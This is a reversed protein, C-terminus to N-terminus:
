RKLSFHSRFEKNIGAEQYNITFWYDTAPLLQGNLTGDWGSGSAGSATMEKILKGFRDFIYIKSMAITNFTPIIWTDNIGDGNPTFYKPFDIIMVDKTLVDCAEPDRVSITHPGPAINDFVNSSQFPGYNLQYEYDGIPTTTIVVTPNDAFFGNVEYTFDTPPSSSDVNAFASSECGTIIDTITVGYEGVAQAEYFSKTEFPIAGNTNFWEFTFDAENLQTDLKYVRTVASTIPDICIFGDEITVTPLSNVIITASGTLNQSCANPGQYTASVLEYVTTEDLIGTPLITNEGSLNLTITEPTGSNITYIVVAGPTGNFIIQTSEGECISSPTAQAITAIPLPKVVLTMPITTTIPVATCDGGVKVTYDGANEATANSVTYSPNTGGSILTTGNFYWQYTPNAGTVAITFTYEGGLCITGSSPAAAPIRIKEDIAITVSGTINQSCTVTNTIAVSVLTFTAPATLIATPATGIGFNDLTTTLDLIGDNYTVIANPTGTFTLTASTGECISTTSASITAFPVNVTLVASTGTISGLCPPTSSTAVSTLLYTYDTTTTVSQVGTDITLFGTTLITVEPQAVGNKTYNVIAGPTGQIQLGTATQSCIISNTLGVISATPAGVTITVFGDLDAICTLITNETVEELVYTTNVLLLPTTFEGNGIGDIVVLYNNIGDTIAVISNPTGEFDLTASTNICLSSPGSFTATPLPHVILTTTSVDTSTGNITAVVSYDYSGDAVPVAVGVPNQDTSFAIGNFSWEYTAGAGADSAFLDFFETNQCVNGSNSAVTEGCFIIEVEATTLFPDCGAGSFEYTVIYSGVASTSLNVAGTDADIVLGVPEASYTGGVTLDPAFPVLISSLGSCFEPEIGDETYSFSGSPAETLFLKFKKIPDCIGGAFIHVMKMWIDQGDVGIFNIVEADPIPIGAPNQAAELTTYYFIDFDGIDYAALVMPENLRLDFEPTADNCVYLDDAEAMLSYAVAQFEIIVDDDQQCGSGYSFVVTYVGAEAVELNYNTAGAILIGDKLWSYTVGTIPAVGAQITQPSGACFANAGVFETESVRIGTGTINPGGITFSGAELFVASDFASDNHDAIVLKISYEIGPTVDASAVMSVTQGRMNIASSAAGADPGTGFVNYRDFFLPNVSSCSPNYAADRITIVSVRTGVPNAPSITGPVVALNKSVGTTLNTLIFAFTDGFLCQYTGYENSAFLFNFSFTEVTPVFNFKVFSRDRSSTNGNIANLDGDTQNSGTSTYNEGTYKGQTFSANGSRIIIGEKFPFNSNNRKFAGFGAAAADNVTASSTFNSIQVCPENILVDQILQSVTYTSSDITVHNPLPTDVDSATNNTLNFEFTSSTVACSYILNGTYNFPVFVDVEYTLTVGVALSLFSESVVGTGTVGTSSSWTVQSANLGAPVPSTVFVNEAVSPGENVVTITYSIDQDVLYQTQNNTITTVIDAFVTQTLGIHSTLLLAFLLLLKKM